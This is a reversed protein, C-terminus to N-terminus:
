LMHRVLVLLLCWYIVVYVVCSSVASVLVNCFICVLVVLLCGYKVVYAVSVSVASV